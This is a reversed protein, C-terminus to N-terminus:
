PVSTSLELFLSVFGNIICVERVFFYNEEEELKKKGMFDDLSM